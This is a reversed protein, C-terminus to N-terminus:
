RESFKKAIIKRLHRLILNAIEGFPANPRARKDALASAAATRQGCPEHTGVRSQEYEDAQTCTEASRLVDSGARVFWGASMPSRAPPDSSAADTSPLKEFKGGGGGFFLPGPFGGRGPHPAPAGSACRGAVGWGCLSGCCGSRVVCGGGRLGAFVQGRGRFEGCVRGWDRGRLCARSSPTNPRSSTPPYCRYGDAPAIAGFEDRSVKPGRVARTVHIPRGMTRVYQGASPVTHSRLMGLLSRPLPWM